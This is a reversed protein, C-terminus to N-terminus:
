QNGKEHTLQLFGRQKITQYVTDGSSDQAFPLFLEPLEAMESDIMALQAETWNKLIRWAVRAAQEKTQLRKPVKEAEKLRKYVGELRAPLKFMMVGYPTEIRFSLASMVGNEFETLIAQAGAKALMSQLEAISKKMGVETTYNLIPM